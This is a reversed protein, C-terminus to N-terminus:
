AQQWRMGVESLCFFISQYLFPSKHREYRLSLGKADDDLQSNEQIELSQLLYVASKSWPILAGRIMIFIYLYGISLIGDDATPNTWKM